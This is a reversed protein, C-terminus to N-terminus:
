QIDCKTGGHALLGRIKPNRWASPKPSVTCGPRYISIIVQKISGEPPDM